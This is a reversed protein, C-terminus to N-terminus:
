LVLEEENPSGLVPFLTRGNQIAQPLRRFTLLKINPNWQRFGTKASNAVWALGVQSKWTGFRM